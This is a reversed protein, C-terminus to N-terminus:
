PAHPHDTNNRQEGPHGLQQSLRQAVAKVFETLQGVRDLSVRWVPGSIGIAAVVQGTFNRVPAALCRIGQNFEEDDFAYGQGRVRALEQEFIPAATITRPTLPRLEAANLFMKLEADSLYALLIKGIATCHAPRPYGVRESVAVPSSGDIKGIVIVEGRELVALHSAEGTQQAMDVLFPKAMKLLQVETWASGALHFLKSGLHYQKTAEDQTLYGLTTLTRLLHFTTSSHLGIERSVEATTLGTEKKAIIELIGLGRQLSQIIPGRSVPDGPKVKKALVRPAMVFGKRRANEQQQLDKL